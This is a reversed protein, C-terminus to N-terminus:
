SERSRLQQLREMLDAQRDSCYLRILDPVEARPLREVYEIQEKKTAFLGFLKRDVVHSFHLFALAEDIPCIHLLSREQNGPNYGNHLGFGPPCDKEEDPGASAKLEASWDYAEWGAVAQEATVDAVEDSSYDHKQIWYHFAM